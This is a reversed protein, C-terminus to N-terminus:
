CPQKYQICVSIGDTQIYGNQELKLSNGHCHRRRRSRKGPMRDAPEGKRRSSFISEFTDTAIAKFDDFSFTKKFYGISKLIAHLTTQDIPVFHRKISCMPALNWTRITLQPDENRQNFGEVAQLHEKSAMLLTSYHKKLLAETIRKKPDNAQDQSFRERERRIADGMEYTLTWDEEDTPNDPKPDYGIRMVMWICRDLKKKDRTMTQFYRRLRSEFNFVLHNEFVTRYRKVINDTVVKWCCKPVIELPIVGGFRDIGRDDLGSCWSILQQNPRTEGNKGIADPIFRKFIQDLLRKRDSLVDIDVGLQESSILFANLFRSGRISLLSSMQVLNELMESLRQAQDENSSRFGRMSAQLACKLTQVAQEPEGEGSESIKVASGQDLLIHEDKSDPEEEKIVLEQKVLIEEVTEAFAEGSM